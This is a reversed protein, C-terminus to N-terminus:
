CFEAWYCGARELDKGVSYAVSLAATLSLKLEAKEKNSARM